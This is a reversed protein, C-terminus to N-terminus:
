CHRVQRPPRFLRAKFGPPRLSARELTLLAVFEDGGVLPQGPGGVRAPPSGAARGSGSPHVCIACSNGPTPVLTCSPGPLLTLRQLLGPAPPAQAPPEGAGWGAAAGSALCDDAALDRSCSHFAGAEAWSLPVTIATALFDARVASRCGWAPGCEAAALAFGIFFTPRLMATFGFLPKSPWSGWRLSRLPPDGPLRPQGNEALLTGSTGGRDIEYDITDVRATDGLGGGYLCVGIVLLALSSM